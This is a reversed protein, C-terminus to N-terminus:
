ENDIITIFERNCIENLYKHENPSDILSCFYVVWGSTTNARNIRDLIWQGSKDRICQASFIIKTDLNIHMDSSFDISYNNEKLIEKNTKM